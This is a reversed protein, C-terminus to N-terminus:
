LCRERASASNSPALKDVILSGSLLYRSAETVAVCSGAVRSPMTHDRFMTLPEEAHAAFLGLPWAEMGRADACAAAYCRTCALSHHARYECSPGSGRAM